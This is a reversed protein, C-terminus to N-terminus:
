NLRTVVWTSKVGDKRMAKFAKLALDESEFKTAEDEEATKKIKVTDDDAVRHSIYYSETDERFLGFVPDEEPVEGKKLKKKKEAKEAVKAEKAAPHKGGKWKLKPHKALSMLLSTINSLSGGASEDNLFSFGARDAIESGDAKIVYKRIGVFEKGDPATSFQTRWEVGKGIKLTGVTDTKWPKAEKKDKSM